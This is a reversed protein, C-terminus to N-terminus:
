NLLQNLSEHTYKKKLKGRRWYEAYWEGNDDLIEWIGHKKGRVFHGVVKIKQDNNFELYIGHRQYRRYPILSRRSGYIVKVLNSERDLQVCLGAHIISISQPLIVDYLTIGKASHKLKSEVLSDTAVQSYGNKCNNIVFIILIILKLKM